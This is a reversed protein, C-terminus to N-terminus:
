AAERRRADWRRWATRQCERCTRRGRRDTYTNAPTYRHGAPCETKARNRAGSVRGAEGRRANEANTVPELHAPNVCRRNRCLHDLHLGDPVPGIALEYAVRHAKRSRWGSAARMGFCGYGARDLAATWEWCDPGQNVKSWFRAPLTVPLAAPTGYRSM